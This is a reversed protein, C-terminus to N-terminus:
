NGLDSYMEPFYMRSVGMLVAYVAPYWLVLIVIDGSSPKQRRRRDVLIIPTWGVAISFLLTFPDMALVPGSLFAATLQLLVIWAIALKLYPAIRPREALIDRKRNVKLLLIFFCALGALFLALVVESTM